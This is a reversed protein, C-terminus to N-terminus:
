RKTTDTIKVDSTADRLVIFRNTITNLMSARDATPSHYSPANGFGHGMPHICTVQQMASKMVLELCNIKKKTTEEEASRGGGRDLLKM